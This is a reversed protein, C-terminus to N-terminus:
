ILGRELKRQLLFTTWVGDNECEMGLDSRVLGQIYWEHICHSHTYLYVLQLQNSICALFFVVFCYGVYTLVAPAWFFFVDQITGNSGFLRVPGPQDRAGAGQSKLQSM